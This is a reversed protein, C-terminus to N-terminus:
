KKPLLLNRLSAKIEDSFTQKTLLTKLNELNEWLQESWTNLIKRAGPLLDGTDLSEWLAGMQLNSLLSEMGSGAQSAQEYLATRLTDRSVNYSLWQIRQYYEFLVRESSARLMAINDTDILDQVNIAEFASFHKLIWRVSRDYLGSIGSNKVQINVLSTRLSTYAADYHANIQTWAQDLIDKSRIVWINESDVLEGPMLLVDKDWTDRLSVAHNVAHIYHKELNIEYITGRVWAIIDNKPLDTEFYSEGILARVVNSWIKGKKLSFAIQITGYWQEALMTHIEIRTRSGLRTVSHDPWTVIGLSDDGTEVADDQQLSYTETKSLEIALDWRIIKATWEAVTLSPTVPDDAHIMRYYELASWSFMLIIGIILIGLSLLPIRLKM